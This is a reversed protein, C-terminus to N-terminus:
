LLELLNQSRREWLGSPSQDIIRVDSYYKKWNSITSSFNGTSASKKKGGILTLDCGGAMRGFILHINLLAQSQQLIELKEFKEKGELLTQLPSNIRKKYISNQLKDIYLDYLRINEEKSIKDYEMDYKYNQNKKNKEVFRDLKKIYLKWEEASSFPVISQALLTKGGSGIGSICVRFGDLSLVTNVKWPRMGMPFSVEDVRKGLIKELRAFAYERSFDKDELFRRGYLLEVSMIIIENKKGAKYRTPIFFMVGAKNYGGYRETPLGVKLSTLGEKKKVPMQDFLGGTKFTAYKVFHASNKKATKKVESLMNEGDWANAVPKTFLTKTKLSYETDLKFWLKSFKMHYVNGVAINLYADVAHHLDNYSRSKPLEFEHRFDSVLGAKTYVVEAQPYKEKLLEAVLKNAQSTETLQRNIFGYKEDDTFGTNRILRKYKEDSILGIKHWYSWLGHMKKRIEADIPYRDQKTGNISSLVLVKNNIISDDKVYAQPYIHDINYRDSGSMLKELDITTGSYACKGLQIFYLFLRDSQLRNDAYEGLDELQRQLEKSEEKCLAYFEQIQQKRSKSRQGKSDPSKERTTEVFIKDPKGFAKEVDKVIALTRYIPRRVANSVGDLEFREKLSKTEGAYYVENWEQVSEMFTYRDSLIEMLNDNTEWLLRLITTAEGIKKDTGELEKLLKGSLRGFDKIKIGSIYRIDEESLGPYAKRLWKKVRSKDEAYSAREVIREVDEESLTGAQLLKRFSYYTSLSAHIQEDIGTLNERENKDLYNNSILYEEIEKRKVKKKKEFLAKYIGQKVELPIKHGNIKLNNIENLVMFKQYCLSDKPLVNEGALYSCSNTMRKIFAEESADEDIMEKYNWPTIKGEARRVIWAHESKENLPGVYYPVRFTFIAHIKDSTLYGEEDKERLFPLYSAANELIKMLEYEYLQHPIIRNDTNKQKPLFSRLELRSKMKEYAEADEREPEITGILTLIYKSFEELSAKEKLQNRCNKEAHYVYSVYNNKKDTQRFVEDYKEPLYKRIFEKLTQLDEKHQVYAAVKSASITSIEKGSGELIDALIGWEYLKRLVSILEGDEGIGTMLEAFKEEDMGLAISEYDAYGENCFLDKPKCSGGALLRILGDQSFPFEERALKEPKKGNLLLEKLEKQKATVGTKKKLIDGLAAANIEGWPQDYENERFFQLFSDYVSSIDTLEDLNEVKIQNLFHGRHALLWACALYVLRIDHPEKSDMLECILHHITPYDKMYQVDTYDEDNFFIYPDETEDRWRFSESLRVFFRPDVKEIEKAFLEQLLQIRQKRRDLRRRASRYARREASTSAEDFIVSGWADAGHFRQLHYEQDTVAYGVSNTGIDLGLYIKKENGM